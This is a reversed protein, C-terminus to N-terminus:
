PRLFLTGQEVPEGEELHDVQLDRGVDTHDFGEAAPPLIACGTWYKVVSSGYASLAIPLGVM